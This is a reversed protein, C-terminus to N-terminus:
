ARPRRVDACPARAHTRRPSRARLGSRTGPRATRAFASSGSLPRTAPPPAAARPTDADAPLTTPHQVRQERPRAGTAAGPRPREAGITERTEAGDLRRPASSAARRGVLRLGRARIARWGRQRRRPRREDVVARSTAGHQPQLERSPAVDRGGECVRDRGRARDGVDVDDRPNGERASSPRFSAEILRAGERHRESAPQLPRCPTLQAARHRGRGLRPAGAGFAPHRHVADEPGATRRRRAHQEDVVHEGRARRHGSGRVDQALGARGLDVRDGRGPRHRPPSPRQAARRPSGIRLRARTRTQPQGPIMGPLRHWGRAFRGVYPWRQHSLM